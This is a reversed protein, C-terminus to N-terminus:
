AGNEQKVPDITRLPEFSEDRQGAVERATRGADIATAPQKTSAPKDRIPPTLRTPRRQVNFELQGIAEGYSKGNPFIGEGNRFLRPTQMGEAISNAPVETFAICYASTITKGPSRFAAM